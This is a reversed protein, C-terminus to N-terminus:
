IFCEIPKWVNRNMMDEDWITNSLYLQLGIARVFGWKINNHRESYNKLAEFKNKAYADINKSTGDGSVGGKAEIIWVDENQLQIIYDPYFNNRRFAKRYVISFFEDGKDGNKYLWKVNDYRDCWEEFQIETYSRNPDILINSGYNEYINKNYIKTSEVKKHQNYYQSRPFSWQQLVERSLHCISNLLM